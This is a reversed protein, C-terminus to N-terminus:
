RHCYATCIFDYLVCCGSHNAIIICLSTSDINFSVVGVIENYLLPLFRPMSRNLLPFLVSRVLSHYLVYDCYIYVHSITPVIRSSLLPLPTSLPFLSKSIVLYFFIFVYIYIYIYLNQTM